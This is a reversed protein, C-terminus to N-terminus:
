GRTAPDSLHQSGVGFSFTDNWLPGLEEFPSDGAVLIRVRRRHQITARLLGILQVLQQKTEPKEDM